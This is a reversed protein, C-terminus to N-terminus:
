ESLPHVGQRLIEHIRSAALNLNLSERDSQVRVPVDAATSSLHRDFKM